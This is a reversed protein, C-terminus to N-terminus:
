ARSWLAATPYTGPSGPLRLASGRASSPRPRRVPRRVRRRWRPPLGCASGSRRACSVPPSSGRLGNQRVISIFGRPRLTKLLCRARKENGQCRPAPFGCKGIETGAPPVDWARRAAGSRLQRPVREGADRFGVCFIMITRFFMPGCYSEESLRREVEECFPGSM